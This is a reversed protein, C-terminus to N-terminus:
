TEIEGSLLIESTPQPSGGAPEVTVAMVEAGELNEEIQVASMSSGNEPTFTGCSVPEGDKIAWIEYTEDESLEPLDAVVLVAERDDMGVLRGETEEAPGEGHLAYSGLQQPEQLEQLENQLLVNFVLLGGIVAAAAGAALRRLTFIEGLRGLGARSRGGVGSTEALGSESRVRQMLSRRVDEPPDHEQPALAFLHAVAGLEEIESQLEPHAELYAEFQRAEEPPLANLVYAEKNEDFHKRNMESM